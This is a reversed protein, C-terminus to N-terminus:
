INKRLFRYFPDFSRKEWFGNAIDNKDHSYLEVFKLNKERFWDYANKELMEGIGQKQFKQDVALFSIHGVSKTKFWPFLFKIYGSVFGIANEKNEKDVAVLIFQNFTNLQNLAWHGFKDLCDAELQYYLPDFQLHVEFLQHLLQAIRGCDKEIAPRIHVKEM